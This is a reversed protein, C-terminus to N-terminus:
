LPSVDGNGRGAVVCWGNRVHRSRRPYYLHPSCQRCSHPGKQNAPRCAFCADTCAGLHQKAGHCKYLIYDPLPMRTTAEFCDRYPDKWEAPVLNFYIEYEADSMREFDEETVASFAVPVGGVMVDVEEEDQEEARPLPKPRPPTPPAALQTPQTPPLLCPSSTQWGSFRHGTHKDMWTGDAERKIGFYSVAEEFPLAVSSSAYDNRVPPAGSKRTHSPDDRYCRAKERMRREYQQRRLRAADRQQSRALAAATSETCRDCWWQGSDFDYAGDRLKSGCLACPAPEWYDASDEIDAPATLHSHLLPDAALLERHERWLLARGDVPQWADHSLLDELQALREHGHGPLEHKGQCRLELDAEALQEHHLREDYWGDDCWGGADADDIDYDEAEAEMMASAQEMLSMKALKSGSRISPLRTRTRKIRHPASATPLTAPSQALEVPPQAPSTASESPSINALAKSYAKRARLLRNRNVTMRKARENVQEGQPTMVREYRVSGGPSM